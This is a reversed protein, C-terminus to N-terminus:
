DRWTKFNYPSMFDGDQLLNKDWTYNKVFHYYIVHGDTERTMQLCQGKGKGITYKISEPILITEKPIVCRYPPWVLTSRRTHEYLVYMQHNILGATEISWRGHWIVTSILSREHRWSALNRMWLCTWSQDSSPLILSQPAWCNKYFLIISAEHITIGQPITAIAHAPAATVMSGAGDIRDSVCAPLFCCRM